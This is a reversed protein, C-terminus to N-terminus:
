VAVARFQNLLSEPFALNFTYLKLAQQISAVGGGEGWNEQIAVGGLKGTPMMGQFLTLHNCKEASIGPRILGPTYVDGHPHEYGQRCSKPFVRLYHHSSYRCCVFFM